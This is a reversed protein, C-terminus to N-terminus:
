ESRPNCMFISKNLDKPDDILVPQEGNDSLESKRYESGFKNKMFKRVKSLPMDIYIAHIDFTGAPIMLKYVPLGHFNEKICFYAMGDKIECPSMKKDLFYSHAHTKTIIDVYVNRFQCTNFGSLMEEFSASLAQNSFLALACVTLFAYIISLKNNSM